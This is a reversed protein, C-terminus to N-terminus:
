KFHEAGFNGAALAESQARNELVRVFSLHLPSAIHREM